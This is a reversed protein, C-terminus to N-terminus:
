FHWEFLLVLQMKREKPLCDNILLSRSSKPQYYSLSVKMFSIAVVDAVWAVLMVEFGLTYDSLLSRSSARDMLHGVIMASVGWGASAYMRQNGYHQNPHGAVM